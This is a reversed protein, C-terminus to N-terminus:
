EDCLGGAQAVRLYQAFLSTNPKRVEIRAYGLPWAPEAVAGEGGQGRALPKATHCVSDLRPLRIM